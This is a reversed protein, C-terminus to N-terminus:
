FVSFICVKGVNCGGGLDYDFRVVCDIVWPGNESGPLSFISLWFLWGIM